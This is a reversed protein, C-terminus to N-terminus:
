RGVHYWIPLRIGLRRAAIVGNLCGVLTVAIATAVAAGLMGLAPILVLAAVVNTVAAIAFVVACARQEGAMNLLFESPGMAARALFGAVLVFMVPYGRAFDPGFLSLLFPGLAVIVIAGFLSPWFTFRVADRVTRLLAARDENAAHRAFQRAAASGVAYHVFMILAMTKAAAFYIGVDDPAAFASLILVDTTQLFVECGGIVFLPLAVVAWRRVDHDRAGTAVLAPLRQEILALQVIAAAWTAIVAAWVAAEASPAIGAAEMVVIGGLVFLPRMVYPPLLGAIMWGQSRGIGDHVESLTVMPVCLFAILLPVVYPEALVGPWVWVLLAAVTSVLTANAVAFLRGGRVLGRMLADARREAYEPLLRIMAVALGLHSLGGMLLVATWVFVYVGFDAAGVWRALVVQTVYLLAASLLRICFAVAARRITLAREDDGKLVALALDRVRERVTAGSAPEPTAAIETM